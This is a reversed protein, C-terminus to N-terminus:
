KSEASSNNFWELKAQESNKYLLNYLQQYPANSPAVGINNCPTSQYNIPRKYQSRM